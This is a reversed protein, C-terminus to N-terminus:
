GIREFRGVEVESETMKECDQDIAEYEAQHEGRFVEYAERSEWFDLTVYRLSDKFDLILESGIYGVSQKFFKAWRGEPGYTQEFLAEQEPRIHFEWIILHRGEAPRGSTM